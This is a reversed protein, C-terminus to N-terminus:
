PPASPALPPRYRIRGAHGRSPPRSTPCVLPWLSCLSFCRRASSRTSPGPSCWHAHLPASPHGPCLLGLRVAFPVLSLYPSHLLLPSLPPVPLVRLCGFRQCPPRRCRPLTRGRALPFVLLAPGPSVLHAPWTLCLLGAPALHPASWPCRLPSWLPPFLPRLLLLWGPWRLRTLTSPAPLM